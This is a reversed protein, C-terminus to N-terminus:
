KDSRGLLYDTSVKFYDALCELTFVDPAHRGREFESVAAQTIGIKNALQKQTLGAERRLTRLREPFTM